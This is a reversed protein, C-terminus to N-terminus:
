KQPVYDLLIRGFVLDAICDYFRSRSRSHTHTCMYYLTTLLGLTWRFCECRLRSDGM